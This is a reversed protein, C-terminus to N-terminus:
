INYTLMEIKMNPSFWNGASWNIIAKFKIPYCNEANIIFYIIIDGEIRYRSPLGRVAPDEVWVNWFIDQSSNIRNTVFKELDNKQIPFGLTNLRSANFDVIGDTTENRVWFVDLFFFSKPSINIPHWIFEGSWKVLTPHYYTTPAKISNNEFFEIKEIRAEVKEASSRGDNVIMVRLNFGPIVIPEKYIDDFEIGTKFCGFSLTSLYPYKNEFVVSLKPKRLRERWDSIYLTVLVSILM